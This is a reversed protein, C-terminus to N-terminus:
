SKKDKAISSISTALDVDLSTVVSDAEHTCLEFSLKSYENRWVPHHNMKEAVEAVRNVITMASVFDDFSFDAKLSNNEFRWDDASAVFAYVEERGLINYNTM